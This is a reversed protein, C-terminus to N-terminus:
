NIVNFIILGQGPKSAPTFREFKVVPEVKQFLERFWAPHPTAKHTEACGSVSQMRVSFLMADDKVSCAHEYLQM